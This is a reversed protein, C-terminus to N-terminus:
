QLFKIAATMGWRIRPDTEELTITVTYTVDGRVEEYRDNIHTVKGKLTLDPLADLVVQVEQGEAVNVIDAETLNDTEVIWNSTDAVSLVTEGASVQQGSIIRTDVITGAMGATLQLADVAAQASAVAANATKVRAEAAALENPDIGDKMRDYTRKANALNSKAVEFQAKLTQVDLSNPNSTYYNLLRNLKERDIRAQSLDQLTQAKKTDSDSLEAQNKYTEELDGIKNDMIVLKAKTVAILNASGQATSSNLYYSYANNYATQANALALEATSSSLNSNKLEDLAQSASLAEQQAQALALQAPASNSLSALVQGSSVKDGDKVLVRAIEGPITFSEDLSQKPMLKGEAILQSGTGSSTTPVGTGTSALTGTSAATKNSCASLTFILVLAVSSLFLSKKMNEM